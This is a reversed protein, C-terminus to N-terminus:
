DRGWAEQIKAPDTYPREALIRYIIGSEVGRIASGERVASEVTENGDRALPHKLRYLTGDSMRIFRVPMKPNAVDVGVIYSVPEREM